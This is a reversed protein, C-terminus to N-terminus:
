GKFCSVLNNTGTVRLYHQSFSQVFNLCDCNNGCNGDCKLSCGIRGFSTKRFAYYLLSYQVWVNTQYEQFTSIKKAKNM